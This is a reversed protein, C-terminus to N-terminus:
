VDKISTLSLYITTKSLFNFKKKLQLKKKFKQGDFGPDSRYEAFFSPDPDTDFSYLDSVSTLPCSLLVVTQLFLQSTMQSAVFSFVLVNQIAVACTPTM